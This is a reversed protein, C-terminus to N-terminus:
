ASVAKDRIKTFATAVIELFHERELKVEYFDFGNEMSKKRSEDTDLSTLAVAPIDSQRISQRVNKIFTWGDMIPMELDSVILDFENEELQELGQQGNKV